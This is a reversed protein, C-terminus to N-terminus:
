RMMFSFKKRYRYRQHVTLPYKRKLSSVTISYWNPSTHVQRWDHLVQRRFNQFQCPVCGPVVLLSSEDGSMYLECDTIVLFQIFKQLYFMKKEYPATWCIPRDTPDNCHWTFVNKYVCKVWWFWWGVLLLCCTQRQPTRWIQRHLSPTARHAVTEPRVRLLFRHSSQIM